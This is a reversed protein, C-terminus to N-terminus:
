HYCFLGYKVLLNVLCSMKQERDDLEEASVRRRLFLIVCRRKTWVLLSSNSHMLSRQFRDFARMCWGGVGSGRGGADFGM